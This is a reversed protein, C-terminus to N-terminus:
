ISQAFIILPLGTPDCSLFAELMKYIDEGLVIETVIAGPARPGIRWAMEFDRSRPTVHCLVAPEGVREAINFPPAQAFKVLPLCFLSYMIQDFPSTLGFPVTMNPSRRQRVALMAIESSSPSVHRYLSM